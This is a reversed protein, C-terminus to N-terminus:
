QLLQQRLLALKQDSIKLQDRRYNDFSGWHEDITNFATQLWQPKVSYLQTLVRASEEGRAKRVEEIRQQKARAVPQQSAMYDTIITDMPVGLLRLLLAAAYGTRDKGVACHFVVPKGQAAIVTELFAKFQPIFTTAFQENAHRLIKDADVDSMDGSDIKKALQTFLMRNGDDLVPVEVVPMPKTHPLRNPHKKREYASRLDILTALNMDKILLMDDPTAESFNGSRYLVGWRTVKGDTTTYGGMDRFNAIRAFPVLRHDARQAEPFQIPLLPLEGPIFQIAAIAVLLITIATNRLTTAKLLADKFKKTWGLYFRQEM